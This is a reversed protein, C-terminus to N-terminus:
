HSARSLWARKGSQPRDDVDPRRNEVHYALWSKTQVSSDLLSMMRSMEAISGISVLGNRTASPHTPPRAPM